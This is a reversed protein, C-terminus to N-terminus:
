PAEEIRVEDLYWGDAVGGDGDAELRFRLRVRSSTHKSLDLKEYSWTSQNGNYKKLLSWTLGGDTSVEVHGYDNPFFSAAGLEYRHFFTLVPAIASSLDVPHALVATTGAWQPYKGSPSDTLAYAGAKSNSSTVAWDQSGKLWAAGGSEFGDHFPYAVRTTDAERITVDDVYWGDAVGGDGNSVLRFRLQVKAQKYKSLDLMEYSWTSQNGSYKELEIWNFGGDTSIEVYAFDKPFFSPDLLLYKHFFTLVPATAATLDISKAFRCDSDSNQAYKGTPTDTLSQPASGYSSTSVGWKGGCIWKGLGAKFDDSFYSTGGCGEDVLWDCDNNKGDCLEVAGPKTAQDGDDCDSGSTLQCGAPPCGVGKCTGSATSSFHTDKDKDCYYSVLSLPVDAQGTDVLSVDAPSVDPSSADSARLDPSSADLGGDQGGGGARCVGAVCSGSACEEGNRCVAGDARSNPVCVGGRCRLSKCWGDGACPEGNSVPHRSVCIGAHCVQDACDSANTCTEGIGRRGVESCGTVICLAILAGGSLRIIM